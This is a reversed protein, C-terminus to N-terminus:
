RAGWCPEGNPLHAEGPPLLEGELQVQMETQMEFSENMCTKWKTYSWSAGNVIYHTNIFEQRQRM